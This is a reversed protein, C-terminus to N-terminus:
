VRPAERIPQVFLEAARCEGFLIALEDGAALEEEERCGVFMAPGVTRVLAAIRAEDAHGASVLQRERTVVPVPHEPAQAVHEDVRGDRDQEEVELLRSSQSPACSMTRTRAIRM